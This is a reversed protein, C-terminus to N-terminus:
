AHAQTLNYETQKSINNKLIRCKYKIWKAGPVEKEKIMSALKFPGTCPPPWWCETHDNFLWIIPIVSVNNYGPFDVVAFGQFSSSNNKHNIFFSSPFGM